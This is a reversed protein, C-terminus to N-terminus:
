EKELKERLRENALILDKVESLANEAISFLKDIGGTTLNQLGGKQLNKLESEIQQAREYTM